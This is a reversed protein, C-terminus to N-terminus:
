VQETVLLAVPFQALLKGVPISDSPAFQGGSMVDRLQGNRLAQPLVIATDGWQSAPVLPREAGATLEFVFRPAVLLACQGDLARAFAVLHRARAGVADVPLYDGVAFLDPYQARIRLGTATVFLKPLGTEWEESLAASGARAVADLLIERAPFDVPSRNDPDVLSLDWLESGQYFDPVGPAALKIALQALSNVAGAIQIPRCTRVFDDLFEGNSPSVTAAVFEDLAREYDDNINTWSTRTKAERVAKKMYAQLRAYLAEIMRENDALRGFPWVGALAQYFLWETAPEPVVGHITDKRHVANMGSWRVVAEHWRQPIESLVYLRARADEGRKTDHTASASLGGPQTQARQAMRAHFEALPAGYHQPSAGVENLAILRNFRYFLTDEIAKAMVPGSTQQFRTAFALARTRFDTKDFGIQDFDTRDFNGQDVDVLLLGEIFDIARVDEVVRASKAARAAGAILARDLESVGPADVYSRYVPLAVAMEVIARRLSDAGLDRSRLDHGAIMAAQRTLFILEAALNHEFIQRKAAAAAQVYDIREGTFAEYARDMDAERHRDVLLGGLAAIFEYGTTGDVPWDRRLAEAPELIKEVLLYLPEGAPAQQRFGELYANPDALGDIHDIRVGHVQGAAILEFLRAHVDAFVQPDEVRVGILEAIEFFRRYTLAERALRWHALRWIQAEHIRHLWDREATIAAVAREIAHAEAPDAACNALQAKLAAAEPGRCSAFHKALSALAASDAHALVQSYTPPTLPLRRDYYGFFLEGRDGDFGIRFEGNALADAYASGLMPLLLSPQSWDIDFHTAFPSQAGWELVDHWWANGDATGMHNPVFDVILGLGADSLSDSLLGFGKEGGIAPEIAAFDIGDYGHSSGPVAAFLPSAYLHSVGLRALYGALSAARSFTM